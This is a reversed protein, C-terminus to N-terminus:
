NEPAPAIGNDIIYQSWARGVETLQSTEEDWLNGTTYIEKDLVSYWFWWQVLRNDDATYGEEGKMKRFLDFTAELFAAVTEPPFGYDEPMLIGYESIVLPKDGYGREGMWRRFELLHQAILEVDDHDDIEYLIGERGELGPPIGVGWSDAEERLIFAHVNWIDVPMSEGYREEYTDLVIDLYARRLPTPQSVGGIAVQAGPDREKIFSYVEHYIEAYREPTVNDQWVVDPENGIMWKSGPNAAIAEALSEWSVKRIGQQDLRVMQWYEAPVDPPQVSVNWNQAAGFILGAAHAAEADEMGRAISVGFRSLESTIQLSVSTAAPASTSDVANEVAPTAAQTSTASPSPAAVNPTPESSSIRDSESGPVPTRTPVIPEPTATPRNATFLRGQLEDCGAFVLLLTLMFLLSLVAKLWRRNHAVL